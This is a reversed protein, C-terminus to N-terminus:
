FEMAPFIMLLLAEKFGTIAEDIKRGSRDDVDDEEGFGHSASERNKLLECYIQYVDDSSLTGLQPLCEMGLNTEIYVPLNSRMQVDSVGMEDCTQFILGLMEEGSMGPQFSGVQIVDPLAPPAAAQEPHEPANTSTSIM